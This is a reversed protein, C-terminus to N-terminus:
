AARDEPHIGIDFVLHTSHGPDTPTTVAHALGEPILLIDGPQTTIQHGNPGISWQKAGHIQIIASYWTDYHPASPQDAAHSDYVAAIVPHPGQSLATLHAATTNIWAVTENAREFIWTRPLQRYAALTATHDGYREFGRGALTVSQGEPIHTRSPVDLTAVEAPALARPFHSHTHHAPRPGGTQTIRRWLAAAVLTGRIREANTTILPTRHAAPSTRPRDNASNYYAMGGSSDYDAVHINLPATDPITQRDHDQAYETEGTPSTVPYGTDHYDFTGDDNPMLLHALPTLDPAPTNPGTFSAYEVGGNGDPLLAHALPAHQEGPAEFEVYVPNGNHDREVWHALPALEPANPAPTELTASGPRDTSPGSNSHYEIIGNVHVFFHAAPALAPDTEAAPAIEPKDEDSEVYYTDGNEHVARHVQMPNQAPSTLLDATM